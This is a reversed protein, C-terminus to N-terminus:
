SGHKALQAAALLLAGIAVDEAAGAGETVEQNDIFSREREEMGKCAGHQERARLAAMNKNKGRKARGNAGSAAAAPATLTSLIAAAVSAKEEDSDWGMGGGGGGREGREAVSTKEQDSDWGQSGVHTNGHTNGPLPDDFSNKQDRIIDAATRDSLVAPAKGHSLQGIGKVKSASRGKSKSTAVDLASALISAKGASKGKRGGAGARRAAYAASDGREWDCQSPTQSQASDNAEEEGGEGHAPSPMPAKSSKVSSKMIESVTKIARSDNGNDCDKCM